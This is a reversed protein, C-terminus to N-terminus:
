APRFPYSPVGRVGPKVAFLGGALPERAWDAEDFDISATTIFLTDLHEGGFACSTVRAVPLKIEQLLTGTNPDYRRVGWGEWFAIWLMGETDITMGDPVSEEGRVDVVVRRNSIAGTDLDFDYAWVVRQPSDIYYFTKNDASWALGNSCTVGSEIAAFSTTDNEIRYLSQEGDPGTCGVYFRGDPGAKGDNLRNELDGSMPDCWKVLAASEFDLSYVGDKLGLVLGGSANEIVTGVQQDVSVSENVGSKPDFRCVRHGEIDIWFVKQERESWFVGEGLQARDHYVCSAESM